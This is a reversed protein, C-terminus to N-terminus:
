RGDRGAGLRSQGQDPWSPYHTTPAQHAYVVAINVLCQGNGLRPLPANGGDTDDLQRQQRDCVEVHVVFRRRGLGDRPLWRSPLKGALGRTSKCCRCVPSPWRTFDGGREAPRGGPRPPLRGPVVLREPVGRFILGPANREAASAELSEDDANDFDDLWHSLQGVFDDCPEPVRLAATAGDTRADNQLFLYFLIVSVSHGACLTRNTIRLFLECGRVAAPLLLCLVRLRVFGLRETECV